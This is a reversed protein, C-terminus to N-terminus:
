ALVDLLRVAAPDLALRVDVLAGVPIERSLGQRERDAARLAGRRHREPPDLGRAPVREEGLGAQLDELAVAPEVAPREGAALVTDPDGASLSGSAFQSVITEALAQDPSPTRMLEEQRRARLALVDFGRGLPRVFLSCDRLSLGTPRPPRFRFRSPSIKTRGRCPGSKKRPRVPGRSSTCPSRVRWPSTSRSAAVPSLFRPASTAGISCM